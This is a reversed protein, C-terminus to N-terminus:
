NTANQALPPMGLENRIDDIPRILRRYNKTVAEEVADHNPAAPNALATLLNRMLTRAEESVKMSGRSFEQSPEILIASQYYFYTATATINTNAGDLALKRAAYYNQYIRQSQELQRMTEISAETNPLDTFYLYLKPSVAPKTKVLTVDITQKLEPNEAVASIILQGSTLDTFESDPIVIKVVDGSTM